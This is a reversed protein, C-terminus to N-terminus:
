KGAVKSLFSKHSVPELWIRAEVEVPSMSRTTAVLTSTTEEDNSKQCLVPLLRRDVALQNGEM